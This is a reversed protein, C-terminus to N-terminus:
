GPERDLYSGYNVLSDIEKFPAFLTRYWICGINNLLQSRCDLFSFLLVSVPYLSAYFSCSDHLSLM